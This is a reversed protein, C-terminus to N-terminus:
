NRLIRGTVADRVSSPQGTGCDGHVIADLRNGFARRIALASTAPRRGHLNASSSVLPGGLGECLARVIPHSSVRVALTDHQGTLWHPTEARCPVVWTVPPASPMGIRRRMAPSLPQLFPLLQALDSAVVIVGQDISRQKLALLHLVAAGSYPDCGLGYVTETPYAIVGGARLLRVAEHLQWNV